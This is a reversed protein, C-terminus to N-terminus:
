WKKRAGGHFERDAYGSAYLAGVALVFASARLIGSAM